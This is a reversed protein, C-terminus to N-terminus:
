DDTALNVQEVVALLFRAQEEESLSPDFTIECTERDFSALVGSPAGRPVPLTRVRVPRKLIRWQLTGNPHEKEQERFAEAVTFVRGNRKICEPDSREPGLQADLAQVQEIGADEAALLVAMNYAKGVETRVIRDARWGSFM